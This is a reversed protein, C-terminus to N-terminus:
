FNFLFFLEIPKILEVPKLLKFLLGKFWRLSM